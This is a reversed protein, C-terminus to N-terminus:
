LGWDFTAIYNKAKTTFISAKTNSSYKTIDDWTNRINYKFDPINLEKYKTELLSNAYKLVEEKFNQITKSNLEEVNQLRDSGM